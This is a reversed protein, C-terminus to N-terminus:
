MEKILLLQYEYTLVIVQVYVGSKWLAVSAEFFPRPICFPCTKIKKKMKIEVITRGDTQVNHM